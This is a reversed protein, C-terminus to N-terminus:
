IIIMERKFQAWDELAACVSATDQDEFASLSPLSLILVDAQFM